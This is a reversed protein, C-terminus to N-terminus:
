REKERSKRIGDRLKDEFPETLWSAPFGDKCLDIENDNENITMLVEEDWTYILIDIWGKSLMRGLMTIDKDDSYADHNFDWTVVLGDHPSSENYICEAIYNIREEIKDFLESVEDSIHIYNHITDPSLPQTGM